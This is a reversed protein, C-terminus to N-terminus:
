PAPFLKTRPMGELQRALQDVAESTTRGTADRMVHGITDRATYLSSRIRVVDSKRSATVTLVTSLTLGGIGAYDRGSLTAPGEHTFTGDVDSTPTVRLANKPTARGLRERLQAAAQLTLTDNQAAPVEMVAIRYPRLRSSHPGSQAGVEPAILGLLLAVCWGTRASRLFTM